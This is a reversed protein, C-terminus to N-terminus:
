RRVDDDPLAPRAAARVRARRARTSRPSRTTSRAPRPSASGRACATPRSTTPAGARARRRGGRARRARDAHRALPVAADARSPELELARRLSAEDGAAVLREAESPVLADFFARVAPRPLAGVFEAVVAGDRFAKVAPIGQIGFGARAAPQRGHRGERARGRGRAGRRGGRAAARARPVARVLRGLLRRGRPDHALARHGRSSTAESVDIVTM